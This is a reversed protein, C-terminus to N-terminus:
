GGCEEKASSYMRQVVVFNWGFLRRVVTSILFGRRSRSSGREQYAGKTVEDVLYTGLVEEGM